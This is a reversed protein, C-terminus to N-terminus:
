LAEQRKECRELSSNVTTLVGTCERVVAIMEKTHTENMNQILADKERVTKKFDLYFKILTLGLIVAVGWGGQAQLYDTTLAM